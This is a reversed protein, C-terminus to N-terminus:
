SACCPPMPRGPRARSDNSMAPRGGLWRPQAALVNPPATSQNWPPALPTTGRGPPRQPGRDPRLLRGAPIEGRPLPRWPSRAPYSALAVRGLGARRLSSCAIDNSSATSYAMEPCIGTVRADGRWILGRSDFWRGGKVGPFTLHRSHYSLANWGGTLRRVTGRLACLRSGRRLSGACALDQRLSPSRQKPLLVFVALGFGSLATSVLEWAADSVVLGALVQILFIPPVM